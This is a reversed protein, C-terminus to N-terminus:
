KKKWFFVSQFSFYMMLKIQKDIAESGGMLFLVEIIEKLPSFNERTQVGSVWSSFGSEEQLLHSPLWPTM